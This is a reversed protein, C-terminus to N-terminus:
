LCCLVFQLAYFRLPFFGSCCRCVCFLVRLAPFLRFSCVIRDLFFPSINKFLGCSHYLPFFILPCPHMNITAPLSEKSQIECDLFKWLETTLFKLYRWAAAVSLSLTRPTPAGRTEGTLHFLPTTYHLDSHRRLVDYEM